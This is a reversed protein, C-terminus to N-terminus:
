GRGQRRDSALTRLAFLRAVKGWALAGSILCSFLLGLTLGAGSHQRLWLLALALLAALLWPFAYASLVAIPRRVLLAAGRWWARIASRLNPDAAMWGRGAEVSAHALVLLLGAAGMALDNWHEVSSALIAHENAKGGIGALAGYLAVAAGLPLISWLLLRLLPWYEGIAGRLLDGFGLRVASRSAVLTAGVLLPSLLLMLSAAIRVNAGLTALPATSAMMADILHMPAQGNAIAESQLSHDLVSGLWSRVPLAALLACGLTALVWLLLLKWHLARFLAAPVAARARIPRISANM